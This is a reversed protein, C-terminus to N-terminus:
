ASYYYGQEPSQYFSLFLIIKYSPEKATNFIGKHKEKNNTNHLYCLHGAKFTVKSFFIWHLNQINSLREHNEMRFSARHKREKKKNKFLGKIFLIRLQKTEIKLCLLMSMPLMNYTFITVQEIKHM